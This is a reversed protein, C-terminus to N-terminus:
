CCYNMLFISIKFNLIEFIFLTHTNPLDNIEEIQMEIFSYSISVTSSTIVVTLIIKQLKLLGGLTNKM